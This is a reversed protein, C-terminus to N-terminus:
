GAFCADFGLDDFVLFMVIVSDWIWRGFLLFGIVDSESQMFLHM